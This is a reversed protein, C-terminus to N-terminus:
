QAKRALSPSFASVQSRATVLDSWSLKMWSSLLSILGPFAVVERGDRSLVCLARLQAARVHHQPVETSDEGFRHRSSIIGRILRYFLARDISTILGEGAIKGQVVAGVTASRSLTGRGGSEHAGVARASATSNSHHMAHQRSTGKEDADTRVDALKVAIALLDAACVLQKLSPLPQVSSGTDLLFLCLSLISSLSPLYPSISSPPPETSDQDNLEAAVAARTVVVLAHIKQCNTTIVEDRRPQTLPLQVKLEAILSEAAESDKPLFGAIFPAEAGFVERLAAASFSNSAKTAAYSASPALSSSASSSSALLPYAAAQRPRFTRLIQQGLSPKTSSSAHVSSSSNGQQSSSSPGSSAGAVAVAAAAAAAPSPGKRESEM